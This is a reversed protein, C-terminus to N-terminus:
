NKLLQRRKKPLSSLPSSTSSFLTMSLLSIDNLILFFTVKGDIIQRRDKYGNVLAELEEANWNRARTKSTMKLTFVFKQIAVVRARM